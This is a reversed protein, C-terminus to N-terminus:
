AVAAVSGSALLERVERDLQEQTLQTQAKLPHFKLVAVPEESEEWDIVPSELQSALHSAVTIRQSEPVRHANLIVVPREIDPKVASLEAELITSGNEDVFVRSILATEQYHALLAADADSISIKDGVTPSEKFARNLKEITNKGDKLLVTISNVDTKM